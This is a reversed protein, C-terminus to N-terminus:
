HNEMAALARRIANEVHEKRFLWGSSISDLYEGWVAEVLAAVDPATKVAPLAALADRRVFIHHDWQGATDGDGDYPPLALADGRRILDDENM